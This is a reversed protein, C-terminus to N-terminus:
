VSSAYLLSHLNVDAMAHGLYINALELQFASDAFNQQGTVDFKLVASDGVRRIEVCQEIFGTAPINHLLAELDLRDGDSVSFDEIRCTGNFAGGGLRFVDAGLGGRMSVAAGTAGVLLDSGSGGILTDAGGQGFLAVASTQASADLTQAEQTGVYLKQYPMKVGLTSYLGAGSLDLVQAATIPQGYTL